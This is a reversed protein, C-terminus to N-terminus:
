TSCPAPARRRRSSSFPRGGTADPLAGCARRARACSWGCAGCLRPFGRRGRLATGPM